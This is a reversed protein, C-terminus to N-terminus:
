NVPTLKVYDLGFMFGKVAKENAGKVEATLKHDGATLNVTGLELEGTPVVDPSYLDIATGLQRDDLYLQMVGYDKAKTMQMAIRYKGAQEVHLGLDLRDGPKAEIWWLHADNSWQGPFGTLDQEQPNGGTKGLVKLREGEIAGKVKVSEVPPFYGVRDGVPLATYADTGGRALYWYVVASYLTPRANSYYKEISGEFRTHFPINDTIHWRNLSLHGRNNGDNYTQNHYANYFLGPDGWAYGFYDESGTGITSPFKEGDVFFKEDGEGWWSGRPNWVNLTVGVFRGAGETKLMTWDIAREPEAPSFADRHWKAHFRGLSAIPKTLPASGVEFTAKVPSKGDNVLEIKAGKAFPMYWNCYWWGSGSFGLPLSSYTNAGPATGFFDGLPAWVSPKAEGDWRIQIALERLLDREQPSVPLDLKVRLRTVARAGSLSAVTTTGRSRVSVESRTVSEGVYDSPTTPGCRTLAENAKDLASKEDASLQTSFTPVQTGEPFTQYGFHYYMGWGPDAVIKCSRQYPIPTYNNWGRATVHVLASRTFPENKGDFYGM